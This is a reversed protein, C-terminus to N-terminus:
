KKWKGWKMKDWYKQVVKAEKGFGAKKANDLYNEMAHRSIVEFFRNQEKETLQVVPVGAKKFTEYTKNVVERDHQVSWHATDLSAEIFAQQVDSPLRNWVDLNFALPQSHVVSEGLVLHTKGVEFWKLPIVAATAMFIADIVGRSLSEYLEPIHVNVPIWGLEKFVKRHFGTIVNVKKGELDALSKAPFRATIGTVGQSNPYLVKVNNRKQEADLMAKTDPLEWTLAIVNALAQERSTLQDTNIIQHLPLQERNQDYHLGIIDVAGSSVLGLQELPGGLAGAMFREVKVRGNTKKEVMDLTRNAQVNPPEFPMYPSSYKLKIVQPEAVATTTYAMAGILLTAMFVAGLGKGKRSKVKKWSKEVMKEGGQKHTLGLKYTLGM